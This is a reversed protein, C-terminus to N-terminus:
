GGLVFVNYVMWGTYAQYLALIILLLNNAGHLLPLFERKKKRRNMHLGSLLGFLLLPFMALALKGHPGTILFGHWWVRVMALGGFLGALWLGLAIGGVSVHAKWNFPIKRQWHRSQFRQVGLWLVYGALLTALVQIVPHLLLVVTM